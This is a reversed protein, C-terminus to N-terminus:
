KVGVPPPQLPNQLGLPAGTLMPVKCSQCFVLDASDINRPNGIRSWDQEEWVEGDPGIFEPHYGYFRKRVPFEYDAM